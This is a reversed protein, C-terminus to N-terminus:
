RQDFRQVLDAYGLALQFKQNWLLGRRPSPDRQAFALRRIRGNDIDLQTTIIPRAAEDVWTRSWTALDDPTRDELWPGVIQVGLPLKPFRVAPTSLILARGVSLARM